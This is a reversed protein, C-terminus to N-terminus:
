QSGCDSNCPAPERSLISEPVTQTNVIEDFCSGSEQVRRLLIYTQLWRQCLITQGQAIDSSERFQSQCRSEVQPAYSGGNNPPTDVTQNATLEASPLRNNSDVAIIGFSAQPVMVTAWVVSCIMPLITKIM